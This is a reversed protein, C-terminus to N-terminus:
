FKNRSTFRMSSLSLQTRWGSNLGAYFSNESQHDIASQKSAQAHVPSAFCLVASVIALFTCWVQYYTM